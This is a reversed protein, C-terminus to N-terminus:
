SKGVYDVEMPTADDGSARAVLGAAVKADNSIGESEQVIAEFQPKQESVTKGEAFQIRSLQSLLALSRATTAPQM